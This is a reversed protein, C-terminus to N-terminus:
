KDTIQQATAGAGLCGALLAFFQRRKVGHLRLREETRQKLHLQDTHFAAIIDAQELDFAVKAKAIRQDEM